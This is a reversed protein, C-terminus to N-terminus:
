IIQQLKSKSTTSYVTYMIASLLTVIKEMLLQRVHQYVLFSRELSWHWYHWGQKKRGGAAVARVFIGDETLM